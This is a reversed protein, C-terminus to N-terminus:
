CVIWPNVLEAAVNQASLPLVLFPQAIQLARYLQIRSIRKSESLKGDAILKKATPWVHISHKIPSQRDGRVINLRSHLTTQNIKVPFGIRSRQVLGDFSHPCLLRCRDSM